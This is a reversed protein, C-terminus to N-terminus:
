AAGCEALIELTRSSGIRTAGLRQFELLAALTRIGGAAKVEVSSPVNAVMLQVDAPTAGHTGFGTSTKIWDAKLETCMQCLRLKQEENLYCNEFIVKVKQGAEHAPEIVARIDQEVYSWNGSLVQGINVVMDLEECGDLLAQQAEARKVATVNSGHPFGIVTCTKVSSGRLVDACRRVAHPLLCVSAVNYQLGQEIGAELEAQTSTPALISHDILKAVQAPTLTM